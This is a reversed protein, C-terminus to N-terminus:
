HQWGANPPESEYTYQISRQSVAPPERWLFHHYRPAAEGRRHNLKPAICPYRDTLPGVPSFLPPRHGLQDEGHPRNPGRGRSILKARRMGHCSNRAHARGLEIATRHHRARMHMRVRLACVAHRSQSPLSIIVVSAAGCSHAMARQERSVADGIRHPWRLASLSQLLRWRHTHANSSCSCPNTPTSM